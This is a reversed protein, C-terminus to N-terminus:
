FRTRIEARVGSGIERNQGESVFADVQVSTRNNLAHLLQGGFAIAGQNSSDTDKRGGLELTLQTKEHNMFIQYGIAGGFANDARNSLPSGSLSAPPAAFLIGTNGLPGGTNRDRAASSYNNIGWFANAYMINESGTATRSIEGFLLVGDDVASGRTETAVSANVRFATNFHGIRQIASAGFFWADGGVQNNSFVYAADLNVTSKRLDAETFLGFLRASGDPSNNDRDIDHLGFLATIRLDPTLGPIAISDRTIAISDISDNVMMGEQFFIPQRGISFGFDLGKKDDPDLNPFIEGFEGEFFLTEVNANFGNEFEFGTSNRYSVGSHDRRHRSLPSIGLLVRETPTLKLNAFLDIRNSFFQRSEAVGNDFHGVTSRVDGFVWLAPQWIAGTPLTIGPKLNGTGLFPEGLELLMGARKPIEEETLLPAAEESLLSGHQKKAAKTKPKKAKDDPKKEDPKKAEQQEAHPSPPATDPAKAKEKAVEAETVLPAPKESLASSSQAMAGHVSFIAPLALLGIMRVLVFGKSQRM